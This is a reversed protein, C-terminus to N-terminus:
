AEYANIEEIFLNIAKSYPIHRGWAIVTSSKIEPYLKRQVILDDRWYKAAGAISVPYGLGKAVMVAANTGLNSTFAM